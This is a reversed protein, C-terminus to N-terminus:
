YSNGTEQLWERIDLCTLGINGGLHMECVSIFDSQLNNVVSIRLENSDKTWGCVNIHVLRIVVPGSLMRTVLCLMITVHMRLVHM